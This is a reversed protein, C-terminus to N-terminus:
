IINFKIRFRRFYSYGIEVYAKNKKTSAEKQSLCRIVALEELHLNTRRCISLNSLPRIALYRSWSGVPALSYNQRLVGVRKTAIGKISVEAVLQIRYFRIGYNTRRPGNPGRLIEPGRSVRTSGAIVRVGALAGLLLGLKRYVGSEPTARLSIGWANSSGQLTAALVVLYVAKARVM